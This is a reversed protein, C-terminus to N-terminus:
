AMRSRKRLLWEVTLFIMLSGFIIPADWLEDRYELSRAVQKIQFADPIQQYNELALVSGGSM